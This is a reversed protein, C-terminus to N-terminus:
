KAISYCMCIVSVALPEVIWTCMFNGLTFLFKVVEAEFVESCNLIKTDGFLPNPVQFQCAFVASHVNHSSNCALQNSFALQIATAVYCVTKLDLLLM